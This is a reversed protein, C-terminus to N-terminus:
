IAPARKGKTLLLGKAFEEGSGGKRISCSVNSESFSPGEGEPGEKKKKREEEALSLASKERTTAVRIIAGKEEKEASGQDGVVGSLRLAPAEGFVVL